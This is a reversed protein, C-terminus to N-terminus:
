YEHQTQEIYMEPKIEATDTHTELSNYPQSSNRNQSKRKTTLWM